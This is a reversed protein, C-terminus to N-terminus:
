LTETLTPPACVYRARGQDKAQYLAADAQSVLDESRTNPGPLISAVGISLSVCDSVLSAVHPLGADRM